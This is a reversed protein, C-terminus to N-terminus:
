DFNHVLVVVFGPVALVVRLDMSCWICCCHFTYVISSRTSKCHPWYCICDVRDVKCTEHYSCRSSGFNNGLNNSGFSWIHSRELWGFRLSCCQWQLQCRRLIGKLSNRAFNRICVLRLGTRMRCCVSHDICRKHLFVSDAFHLTCIDLYKPRYSCCTHFRKNHWICGPISDLYSCMCVPQDIRCCSWSGSM